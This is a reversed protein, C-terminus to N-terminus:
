ASSIGLYSAPLELAFREALLAVDHRDTEGPEYGTHCLLQVEPSICAVEVGNISGTVFGEPPYRFSHGDPQPQAGGGEADFKVTHVDIQRRRDDLLVCRVPRHDERIAAHWPEFAGVMAEVDELRAVLDLDSHSRTQEHLLADVGWGGDVWVAVGGRHLASLLELVDETAVPTPDPL